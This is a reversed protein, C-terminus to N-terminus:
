QLNFTKLVMEEKNNVPKWLEISDILISDKFEYSKMLSCASQYEAQTWDRKSFYHNALSIHLDWNDIDERVSVENTSLYSNLNRIFTMVTRDKKLHVNVSKYPPDFCNFGLSCVSFKSKGSLYEEILPIVREIHDSDIVELTVHLMPLSDFLDYKSGLKKQFEEIKSYSESDLIGVLYYKM